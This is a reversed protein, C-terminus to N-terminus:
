NVMELISQLAQPLERWGSSGNLHGGNKIPILKADLKETLFEAHSFHVMPDNTGHIVVFSKAKKKIIDLKFGGAFFTKL